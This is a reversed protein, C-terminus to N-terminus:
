SRSKHCEVEVHDLQGGVSSGPKRVRVIVEEVNFSSLIKSAISDSLSELLYHKKATATEIVAKQVDTYDVTDAINDSIEAKSLNASLEVDIEFQGGQEREHDYVGHYAFLQINKLRIRM